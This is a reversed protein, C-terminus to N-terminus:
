DNASVEQLATNSQEALNKRVGSDEFFALIALSRLPRFLKRFIPIPGEAWDTVIKTRESLPMSTFSQLFMSSAIVRFCTIGIWLQLKLTTPLASLTLVMFKVVEDFVAKRRPAALTTVFQEGVLAEALANWFPSPKFTENDSHEIFALLELSNSTREPLDTLPKTELKSFAIKSKRVAYSSLAILGWTSTIFLFIIHLLSAINQATEPSLVVASKAEFLALLSHMSSMQYSGSFAPTTPVAISLNTYSMVAAAQKLQFPLGLAKMICAFFLAETGWTILSLCFVNVTQTLSTFLRLARLAEHLITVLRSHIGPTAKVALVSTMSLAWRPVAAAVLTAFGLLVCVVISRERWAAMANDLPINSTSLLLIIVIAALDFLRSVAVITLSQVFSLGSRYHLLGAQVPEGLRFPLICNVAHGVMIVNMATLLTLQCDAEVLMRLRLGRWVFGTVYFAIGIVVWRLLHHSAELSKLRAADFGFFILNILLLMLLVSLITTQWRSLAM